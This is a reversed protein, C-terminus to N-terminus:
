SASVSSSCRLTSLRHCGCAVRVSRLRKTVRLLCLGGIMAAFAAYFQFEVSLSWMAGNMYLKPGPINIFYGGLISLGEEIFRPLSAGFNQGGWTNPQAAALLCILGSVVFFLLMAPILRFARRYLFSSRRSRGTLVSQTVVLGSIM